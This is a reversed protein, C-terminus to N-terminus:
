AQNVLFRRALELVAAGTASIGAQLANSLLTNVDVTSLDGAAAVSGGFAVVFAGLLVIVWMRLAKKLDLASLSGTPSNSAPMKGLLSFM